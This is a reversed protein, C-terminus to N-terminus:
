PVPTGCQERGREGAVIVIFQYHLPVLDVAHWALCATECAGNGGLPLSRM